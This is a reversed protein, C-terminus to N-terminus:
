IGLKELVVELSLGDRREKAALLRERMADSNLLHATERESVMERWVEIPVIVATPEGAENSVLQIEPDSM